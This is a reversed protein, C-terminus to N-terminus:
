IYYQVLNYDRCIRLLEMESKSCMSEHYLIASAISLWKLKVPVEDRGVGTRKSVVNVYNEVTKIGTLDSKSKNDEPPCYKYIIEKLTLGLKYYVNLLNILGARIGANLSVFTCFRIDTGVIEGIWKVVGKNLNFPNNNRMGRTIRTSKTMMYIIFIIFVVGASIRLFGRKM